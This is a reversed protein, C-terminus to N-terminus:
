VLLRKTTVILVSLQEPQKTFLYPDSVDRVIPDTVAIHHTISIAGEV